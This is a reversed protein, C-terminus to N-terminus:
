SQKNTYLFLVMWKTRITSIEIMQIKRSFCPM